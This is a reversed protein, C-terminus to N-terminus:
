RGGDGVLSFPAWFIPHAYSFAAKGTGPDIFGPSDILATMAQKLAEARGLGPEAAQRRFLDTTLLRASTTEVPWNSLLMARTGAYFFARGLGSFAEAGAGDAAGTNCASLVVWDANLRLGLIEGMTLLGDGKTKNLKPTTLALAPQHLGDLDGPVLGHTAFAVVRYDALEASLVREETARAGLFVDREADAKVAKAISRIEDGTDPLRPLLALEANSVGRMAGGSRLKIPRGRVKVVAGGGAMQSSGEAQAVSFLPDGFGAFQRRDSGGGKSSRLSKLAAVSPLVTIAHTRGLWTVQKYSEFPTAEAKSAAPMKTVLVGFPLQSLPQNAVVLINKAPGWVDQLPALIKTYLDHSRGVDFRPIDGLSEAAPDLARRLALVSRKLAKRPLDVQNYKAAGSKPVAVVHIRRDTAYISLLVEDATLVQQAESVSSPKPNSLNAYQPFKDLVDGALETRAAQLGAVRKKLQAVRGADQSGAPAALQNAIVAFLADIQKKLDQEKRILGALKEDGAAARAGSATLAQQVATGRIMEVLTFTQDASGLADVIHEVSLRIEAADAANSMAQNVTQAKAVVSNALTKLKALQAEDKSSRFEALTSLALALVTAHHDDGFLARRQKAAMAFVKKAEEFKGATALALGWGMSGAALREFGEPNNALSQAVANYLELAEANKGLLVLGDALALRSKVMVLSSESVEMKTLSALVRRVLGAAEKLRGQALIVASISQLITLTHVTFRGHSKLAGQFATRAVAEAEALRGQRTLNISLRMHVLQELQSMLRPTVQAWLRWSGHNSIAKLSRRLFKEAEEYRGQVDEVAAAASTYSYEFLRVEQEGVPWGQAASTMEDAKKLAAISKDLNGAMGHSMALMGYWGISHGQIWGESMSQPNPNFDVQEIANEFIELAKKLDGGYLTALGHDWNYWIKDLLPMDQGPAEDAYKAAKTYDDVTQKNRGLLNAARARNSYFVANDVPGVNAPPKQDAQKRLKVLRALDEPTESGLIKILDTTQRPPPTFMSGDLQDRSGTDQAVAPFALVGLFLFSTFWAGAQQKAM